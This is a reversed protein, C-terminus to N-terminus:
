AWCKLRIQSKNGKGNTFYFANLTKNKTTSEM